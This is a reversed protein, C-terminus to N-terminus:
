APERERSDIIVHGAVDLVLWKGPGGYERLQFHGCNLTVRLGSWIKAM